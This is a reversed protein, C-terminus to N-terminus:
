VFTFVNPNNLYGASNTVFQTSVDQLVAVVDQKDQEAGIYVLAVDTITPTNAKGFEQGWFVPILQYHQAFGDLQITDKKNDLSPQFDKILAFGKSGTTNLLDDNLYGQNGFEDTMVFIDAGAGGTLEDFQPEFGNLSSYGQIIDNGKGGKLIDDGLGGSLQDNGAGGELLDNGAEGVIKDNGKDGFLRDNGVLGFISDNGGKGKIIDDQETGNLLNNRNNGNITAM